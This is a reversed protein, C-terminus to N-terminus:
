VTFWFMVESVNTDLHYNPFSLLLIIDRILLPLVTAWDLPPLTGAWLIRKKTSQFSIHM